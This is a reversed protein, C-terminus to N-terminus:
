RSNEPVPSAGCFRLGVSLRHCAIRCGLNIPIHQGPIMQIGDFDLVIAQMELGGTQCAGQVLKTREAGRCGM